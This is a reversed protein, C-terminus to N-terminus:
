GMGDWGWIGRLAAGGRTNFGGWICFIFVTLLLSSSREPIQRASLVALLDAEIRFLSGAM